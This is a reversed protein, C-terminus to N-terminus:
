DTRPVITSLTTQNRTFPVVRPKGPHITGEWSRLVDVDRPALVRWYVLVLLIYQNPEEFIHLNTECRLSGQTREGDDFDRTRGRTAASTTMTTQLGYEQVLYDVPPRALVGILAVAYRFYVAGDEYLNAKARVRYTMQLRESQRGM